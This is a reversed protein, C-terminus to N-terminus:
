SCKLSEGYSLRESEISHFCIKSISVVSFSAKEGGWGITHICKRPGNVSSTCMMSARFAGIPFHRCHQSLVPDNFPRNICICFFMIIVSRRCPKHNQGSRLSVLKLNDTWHGALTGKKAGTAIPLCGKRSIANCLIYNSQSYTVLPSIDQHHLLLLDYKNTKPTKM